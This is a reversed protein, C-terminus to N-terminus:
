RLWEYDEILENVMTNSDDREEEEMSILYKEMKVVALVFNLHLDKLSTPVRLELLSNRIEQLRESGVDVEKILISYENYLKSVDDKYDNELKVLDVKPIDAGKNLNGNPKITIMLLLVASIAIALLVLVIKHKKEM